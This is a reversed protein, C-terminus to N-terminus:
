LNLKEQFNTQTTFHVTVLTGENRKLINTQFVYKDEYITINNNPLLM